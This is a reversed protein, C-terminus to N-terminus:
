GTKSSSEARPAGQRPKNQLFRKRALSSGYNLNQRMLLVRPRSMKRCEVSPFKVLQNKFVAYAYHRSMEPMLQMVLQLARRQLPLRSYHSIGPRLSTLDRSVKPDM